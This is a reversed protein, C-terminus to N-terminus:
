KRQDQPADGRQLVGGVAIRIKLPLVRLRDARVEGVLLLGILESGVVRERAWTLCLCVVTSLDAYDCPGVLCIQGCDSVLRSKSRYVLDRQSQSCTCLFPVEVLTGREQLDGPSEACTEQM